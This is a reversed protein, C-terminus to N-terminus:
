SVAREYVVDGMVHTAVTCRDDGLVILAFLVEDITQALDVRQALVDTAKPDIM